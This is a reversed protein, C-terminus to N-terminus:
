LVPQLINLPGNGINELGIFYFLTQNKVSSPYNPVTYTGTFNNYVHEDLINHWIFANLYWGDPLESSYADRFNDMQQNLTQATRSSFIEQVNRDCSATPKILEITGNAHAIYHSGSVERIKSDSKM